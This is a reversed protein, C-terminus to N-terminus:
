YGALKLENDIVKFELVDHIGYTELIYRDIKCEPFHGWDTLFIFHDAAIMGNIRSVRNRLAERFDVKHIFRSEAKPEDWFNCLQYEHNQDLVLKKSKFFDLVKKRVMRVEELMDLREPQSLYLLKM